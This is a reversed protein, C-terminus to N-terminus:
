VMSRSQNQDRKRDGCCFRVEPPGIVGSVGTQSQNRKQNQNRKNRFSRLDADTKKKRVSVRQQQQVTHTRTHVRAHRHSLPQSVHLHKFGTGTLTHCTILAGEDASQPRFM